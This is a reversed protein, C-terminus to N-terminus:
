ECFGCSEKCNNRMWNEFRGNCYRTITNCNPYNDNCGQQSPPSPSPPPSSQSSQDSSSDERRCLGDHEYISNIFQESTDINAPLSLGLKETLIRNAKADEAGRRKCNFYVSSVHHM